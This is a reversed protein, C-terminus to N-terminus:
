KALKILDFIKEIPEIITYGSNVIEVNTIKYRPNYWIEELPIFSVVIGILIADMKPYNGIIELVPGGSNGGFTPSDIVITMNEHYKGAIVGKRLIPRNFDYQVTGKLGLAKPYGFIYVDNGLISKNFYGINITSYTSIKTQPNLKKVFNNYIIKIFNTTDVKGIECVLIDSSKSYQIKNNKHLNKFNIILGKQESKETDNAYYKILGINSKLAYDIVKGVSDKVENFLVHRATVLYANTTDQYILGSGIDGNNLEILMTKPIAQEAISEQSYYNSVVLLTILVFFISRFYTM